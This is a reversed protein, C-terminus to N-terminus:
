PVLTDRLAAPILSIGRAVGPTYVIARAAALAVLYRTVSRPSALGFAERIERQSPARGHVAVYARM